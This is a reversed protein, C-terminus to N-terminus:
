RLIACDRGREWEAQNEASKTESRRLGPIYQEFNWNSESNGDSNYQKFNGGLPQVAQLERGPRNYENPTSKLACHSM